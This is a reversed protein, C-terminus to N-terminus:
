TWLYSRLEILTTYYKTNNNNIANETKEIELYNELDISDSYKRMASRGSKVWTYIESLKKYNDLHADRYRNYASVSGWNETIEDISKRESEEIMTIQDLGKENEVFDIIVADLFDEILGDLDRWTKPIAKRLNEHQPYFFYYINWKIISYIRFIVYRVDDLFNKLKDNM